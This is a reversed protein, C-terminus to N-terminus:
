MRCFLSARGEGALGQMPGEKCGWVVQAQFGCWGQGRDLKGLLGLAQGQLVVARVELVPLLCCFSKLPHLRPHLLLPNSM